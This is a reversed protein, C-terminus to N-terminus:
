PKEAKEGSIKERTKRLNDLDWQDWRGLTGDLLYALVARAHDVDLAVPMEVLLAVALDHPEVLLPQGRLVDGLANM